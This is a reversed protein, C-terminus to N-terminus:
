VGVLHDVTDIISRNRQSSIEHLKAHAQPTVAVQRYQRVGTKVQVPQSKSKRKFLSFM